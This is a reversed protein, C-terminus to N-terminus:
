VSVIYRLEGKVMPMMWSWAVSSDRGIHRPGLPENAVRRLAARLDDAELLQEVREVEALRLLAVAEVERLRDRARGGLPHLRDRALQCTTMMTGIKSRCVAPM